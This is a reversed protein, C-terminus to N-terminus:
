DRKKLVTRIFELFDPNIDIAYVKGKRGV